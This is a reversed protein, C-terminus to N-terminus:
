VVRGINFYLSGYYNGEWYKRNVLTTHYGYYEKIIKEWFKIAPNCFYCEGWINELNLTNFGFELLLRVAVKGLDMKRLEPSIILSMEGLRNEWEINIIGGMGIFSKEHISFYRHQSKRDCITAKYFDEQMDNTLFYPTRLSILSDNRWETAELLNDLTLPQLKM